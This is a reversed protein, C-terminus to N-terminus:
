TQSAKEDTFELLENYNQIDSTILFHKTIKSIKNGIRFLGDKNAITPLVIGEVITKIEPENKENLIVEFYGKNKDLFQFFQEKKQINELEESLNNHFSRLSTFGIEKEWVDLETSKKKLLTQITAHFQTEDEFYLMQDLMKIQPNEEGAKVETKFGDEKQCSAFFLAFIAAILFSKQIMAFIKKALFQLEESKFIFQNKPLDTTQVIPKNENQL